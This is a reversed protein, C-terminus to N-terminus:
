IASPTKWKVASAVATMTMPMRFRSTATPFRPFRATGNLIVDYRYREEEEYHGIACVGGEITEYTLFWLSDRSERLLIGDEDYEMVLVTSPFIYEEKILVNQENLTIRVSLQKENEEFSGTAVKNGEEYSLEVFYGYSVWVGALLGNEDYRYVRDLKNTEYCMPAMTSLDLATVSLLQNKENYEFKCLRIWQPDSLGYRVSVTEKEDKDEPSVDGENKDEAEPESTESPVEPETDPSACSVLTGCLMVLALLLAGIRVFRINKM